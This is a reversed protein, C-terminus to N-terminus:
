LRPLLVGDDEFSDDGGVLDPKERNARDADRFRVGIASLGTWVTLAVRKIGTFTDLLEFTNPVWGKWGPRLKTGSESVDLVRCPIAEGGPVLIQAPRDVCLRISRRREM